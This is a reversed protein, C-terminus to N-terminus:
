TINTNNKKKKLCFVAYSIQSHSSNLRTSKRDRVVQGPEADGVHRLVTADKPKQADELVESGPEVPGAHLRRSAVGQELLDVPPERHQPLPAVLRTARERAALLLHERDRPRHHELGLDDEEVLRGLTQHGAHDGLDVLDDVDEVAVPHRDQEDLLVHSQGELDRAAHVDHLFPHHAVVRGRRVEPPVVRDDVLVQSHLTVIGNSRSRIWTMLPITVPIIRARTAEPRVSIKPIMSTTLKAWPSSKMSPAYRPLVTNRVVPFKQTASAAAAVPIPRSPATIWVVVSRGRSPRSGSVVM